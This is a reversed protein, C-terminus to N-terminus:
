AGIGARRCAETALEPVGAAMQAFWPDRENGAQFRQYSQELFIAAKWLALVEYWRLHEISRETLEAYRAALEDRDPFGPERTVAQIESMVTPAADRAAWHATLYGLDALPDGVTAMEWDLVGLLRVPPEAGFILNGIRFDGHVVTSPAPPPLHDRLWRTTAELEPLERMRAREWLDEFRRLQRELYGDPKGLHALERRAPWDIAHLAALAVIAQHAIEARRSPTALAEPTRTGLVVGDLYEMLYFPAQLVSLDECVAIIRPVPIQTGALGRLVRAERLVDHASPPLPPLPPRRLAVCADGRKVLYTVNSHGGILRTATVPGSGLGERDLYGELRDTALLLADGEQQDVVGAAPDSAAGRSM